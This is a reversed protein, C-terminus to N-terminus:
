HDHAWIAIQARTRLGLKNRIHEVHADATRAAM